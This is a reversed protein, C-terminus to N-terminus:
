VNCEPHTCVVLESARYDPGQDPDLLSSQGLQSM